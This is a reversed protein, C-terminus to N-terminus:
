TVLSVGPQPPPAQKSAGQRREVEWVGPIEELPGEDPKVMFPLPWNLSNEMWSWPQCTVSFQM